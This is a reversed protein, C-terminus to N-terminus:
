SYLTDFDESCGSGFFLFVFKFDYPVKCSVGGERDQWRTEMSLSDKGVPIAIELEKCWSTVTSVAEYLAAHDSDDSMPAMWNASLKVDKLVSIDAALINLLAEALCFKVSDKSNFLAIAPREGIAFAEGQYTKFGSTLVAVDAVPVQWPGVFQNQVVQGGVSQDGINILFGKDAVSPFSLVAELCDQISPMQVLVGLDSKSVNAQHIQAQSLSQPLYHLEKKPLSSLMDDLNIDVPYNDNREDYVRLRMDDRVSGLWDFPCKEREAIQVFANYRDESIALVYREQSENCWLELPSLSPDMTSIKRLYIDGGRNMDKLLEPIANSLGGAGVDHILLIPSEEGLYCCRNIVEQCRREIEPNARQVSAFDLDKRDSSAVQSSAAGGGLGILFSPGGLVVIRTGIPYAGRAFSHEEYVHGMGGAIMVPKHYGYGFVKSLQWELTRFYGAVQPRGFENSYTAAGLPAKLMIELASAFHEPPYKMVSGCVPEWGHNNLRLHSTVYGSLGARTISGCGVAAEDRIEGGVGTAAGPHPSIATPHNHTEVKMLFLQTKSRYEYINLELNLAFEDVCHGELVSANDSYASVIGEYAIHESTQKIMQFLSNPLSVSSFDFWRANFIKHRCHESNVQAFMMLEVDSALRGAYMKLLYDFESSELYIGQGKLSGVSEQSLDYYLLSKSPKDKFLLHCSDYISELMPDFLAEHFLDKDNIIADWFYAIGCEVREISSMGSTKFINTARSSWASITGERPLVYLMSKQNNLAFESDLYIEKDPFFSAIRALLENELVEKSLVVYCNIAQFSPSLDKNSLSFFCKAKGELESADLAEGGYFLYINSLVSEM